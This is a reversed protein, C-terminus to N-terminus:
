YTHTHPETVEGNQLCAHAQLGFQVVELNVGPRGSRVIATSVLGALLPMM